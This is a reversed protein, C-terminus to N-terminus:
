SKRSEIFTKIHTRMPKKFIFVIAPLIIRHLTIKININTLIKMQDKEFNQFDGKIRLNLGTLGIVISEIAMFMGTRSPDEFGVAGTVDFKKVRFGKKVKSFLKKVEKIIVDKDEHNLVFDIKSKIDKATEVINIFKNKISKILDGIKEALTKKDEDEDESSEEDESKKEIEEFEFEEDESIEKLLEESKETETNKAIEEDTELEALDEETQKNKIKFGMIKIENVFGEKDIFAAYEIFKLLWSVKVLGSSRKEEASNDYSIDSDIKIPAFLILFVIVLFLIVIALLLWLIFLMVYGVSQLIITLWYADM